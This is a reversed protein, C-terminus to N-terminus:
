YSPCPFVLIFVTDMKLFKGIHSFKLFILYQFTKAVDTFFPRNRSSCNWVLVTAQNKKMRTRRVFVSEDANKIALVSMQYLAILIRCPLIQAMQCVSFTLISIQFLNKESGLYM